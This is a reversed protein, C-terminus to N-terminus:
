AAEALCGEGPPSESDVAPIVREIDLHQRRVISARVCRRFGSGSEGAVATAAAPLTAM